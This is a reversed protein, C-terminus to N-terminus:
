YELIAPICLLNWKLIIYYFNDDLSQLKFGVNNVVNGTTYIFLLLFLFLVWELKYLYINLLLFYTCM